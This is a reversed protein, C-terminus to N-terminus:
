LLNLLFGQNGCRCGVVEQLGEIDVQGRDPSPGQIQVLFPIKRGCSTLVLLATSAAKAEDLAALNGGAGVCYGDSAHGVLRRLFIHLPLLLVTHIYFRHIIVKLNILDAHFCRNPISFQPFFM